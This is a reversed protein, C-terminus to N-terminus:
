PRLPLRLRHAPQRGSPEYSTAEIRVHTPALALLRRHEKADTAFRLRAPTGPRARVRASLAYPLGKVRLYAEVRCGRPCRLPMAIARRSDLHLPRRAFHVPCTTPASPRAPASLPRRFIAYDYCREEEWAVHTGDFDMAEFAGRSAEIAHTTTAGTDINTVDLNSAGDRRTVFALERGVLRLDGCFRGPLARGTQDLRDYVIASTCEDGRPDLLAAVLTGDAGLATSYADLDPREVHFVEEGSRWNAVTVGTDGTAYEVFDGALGEVDYTSSGTDFRRVVQPAGFLERVTLGRRHCGDGFTALTTGDLAPYSSRLCKVHLIRRGAATYADLSVHAVNNDDGEDNLGETQMESRGVVMARASVSWDFDLAEPWGYRKARTPRVRALVRRAKGPVKLELLYQGIDTNRYGRSDTFAVGGRALEVTESGEDLGSVLPKGGAPAPAAAFGAIALVLGLRGAYERV